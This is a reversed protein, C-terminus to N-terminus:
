RTPNTDKPFTGTDTPGMGERKPPTFTRADGGLAPLDKTPKEGPVTTAFSSPNDLQLNLPRRGKEPEAQPKPSPAQAPAQQASVPVAALALALLLLRTM